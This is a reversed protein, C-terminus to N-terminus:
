RILGHIHSFIKMNKYSKEEPSVYSSYEYITYKITSGYLSELVRHAENLMKKSAKKGKDGVYVDIVGGAVTVVEAFFCDEM